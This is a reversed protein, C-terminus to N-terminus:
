LDKRKMSQPAISAIGALLLSPIYLISVMIVGIISRQKKFYILLGKNFRRQNKFKMEQAFSQGKHHMIEACPTYMVKYGAVRTRRCLDVDEFLLPYEEDFMMGQSALSRPWMMFAGMIQEVEQEKSYDFGLCFYNRLYRLNPFFNHLKLMIMASAIVTPDRRISLQYSGDPNLLTCGAMVPSKQNDMYEVMQDIAHHQIETDPNLACIYRGRSAAIGQNNAKAFGANYNNAIITVDPYQQAVAPVSGDTSANDVVLIEFSATGTMAYVSKITKLLLDKTNWSVIIISVDM